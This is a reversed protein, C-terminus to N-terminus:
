KENTIHKRELTHYDEIRDKTSKRRLVNMYAKLNDVGFYYWLPYNEYKVGVFYPRTSLTGARHRQKLRRMCQEPNPGRVEYGKQENQIM